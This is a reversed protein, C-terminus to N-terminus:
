LEGLDDALPCKPVKTASRTNQGSIRFSGPAVSVNCLLTRRDDLLLSHTQSLLFEQLIFKRFGFAQHPLLSYVGPSETNNNGGLVEKATLICFLSKAWDSSKACSLLMLYPSLHGKSGEARGPYVRLRWAVKDNADSPFVPSTIYGAMGEVFFLLQYHEVRLLIEPRHVTHLGLEQSGSGRVNRNSISQIYFHFKTWLTQLRLTRQYISSNQLLLSEHWHPFPSALFILALLCLGM